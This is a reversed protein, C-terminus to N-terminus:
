MDTEYEEVDTSVFVTMVPTVTGLCAVSKNKPHLLATGTRTFQKQTLWEHVAGANKVGLDKCMSKISWSRVGDEDEYDDEEDEEDSDPVPQGTMAVYYQPTTTPMTAGSFPSKKWPVSYVGPGKFSEGGDVVWVIDEDGDRARKRGGGDM